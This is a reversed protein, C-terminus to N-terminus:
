SNLGNVAVKSIYKRTFKTRRHTKGTISYMYFNMLLYQYHVFNSAKSFDLIIVHIQGKGKNLANTWNYAAKIIPTECLMGKRVIIIISHNNLHSRIGPVICHEVIKSHITTLSVPRYNM